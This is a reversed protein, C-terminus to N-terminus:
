GENQYLSVMYEKLAEYPAPGASLYERLFQKENPCGADLAAQCIDLYRYYGYSAVLSEFPDSMAKEYLYDTFDEAGWGKLYAALDAASYGYYHILLATIGTLTVDLMDEYWRYQVYDLGFGDLYPIVAYSCHVSLGALYGDPANAWRAQQEKSSRAAYVKLYAMGPYQWFALEPLEMQAATETEPPITLDAGDPLPCLERTVNVLFSMNEGYSGFSIREKKRAAEPDAKLATNIAYAETQLLAEMATFIDKPTVHEGMYRGIAERYENAASASLDFLPVTRDEMDLIHEALSSMSIAYTFVPLEDAQGGCRKYAADLADLLAGDSLATLSNVTTKKREATLTRNQQRLVADNLTNVRQLIADFDAYFAEATLDDAELLREIESRIPEGDQSLLEEAFFAVKIRTPAFTSLPPRVKQTPVPTATPEQSPTSTSLSTASPASLTEEVTAAPTIVRQGCGLLLLLAILLCILRKM